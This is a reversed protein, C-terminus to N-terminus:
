RTQPLITGSPGLRVASAGFDEDSYAAIDEMLFDLFLGDRQFLALLRLSETRPPLPAPKSEPVVQPPPAPPLATGALISRVQEGFKRDTLARFFCRFALGLSM